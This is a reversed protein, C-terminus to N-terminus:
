NWVEGGPTGVITCADSCNLRYTYENGWSGGGDGGTLHRWGGAVLVQEDDDVRRELLYLLAITSDRSEVLDSGAARLGSLEALQELLSVPIPNESDAWSAALYPTFGEPARGLLDEAVVMVANDSWGGDSGACGVLLIWSCAGILRHNM